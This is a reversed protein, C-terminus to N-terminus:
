RVIQSVDIEPGEFQVMANILRVKEYRQLDDITIEEEFIIKKDLLQQRMTGRLLCTKPTFWKGDRKFAVNALSADTIAGNKAIIIDDCDGRLAFLSELVMRDEFKHPYLISNSEVIKLRQIKRANYVSIQVSQIESDYVMRIKHLGISPVPCTSLFEKLDIPSRDQFLERFALDMRAQHYSLNGFQGKELRITEILRSM